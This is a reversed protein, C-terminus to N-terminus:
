DRLGKYGSALSTIMSINEPTAGDEIEIKHDEHRSPPLGDTLEERFVIKFEDRLKSLEKEKNEDINMQTDDYNLHSMPRLHFDALKGHKKAKKRM